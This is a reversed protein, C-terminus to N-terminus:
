VNITGISYGQLKQWEIFAELLGARIGQWANLDNYFDGPQTGISALFRAFTLLDTKQRRITEYRLGEQYRTLRTAKSFEEALASVDALDTIPQRIIATEDNIMM